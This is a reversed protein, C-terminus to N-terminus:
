YVDSLVRKGIRERAPWFLWKKKVYKKWTHQNSRPGGAELIETEYNFITGGDWATVNGNITNAKMFAYAVNYIDPNGSNCSSFILEKMTKNELDNIIVNNDNKKVDAKAVIRDNKNNVYMYGVGGKEGNGNIGDDASGHFILVVGEIPKKDNGMEDWKEKFESASSVSILNVETKYKEELDKAWIKAEDEFTHIGDGAMVDKAYFVYSTLGWPDVFM